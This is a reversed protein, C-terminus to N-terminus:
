GLVERVVDLASSPLLKLYPEAGSRPADFGAIASWRVFQGDVAVVAVHTSDKYWEFTIEGTPEPLVTPVALSQPFATSLVIAADVASTSVAIAGDGDWDDHDATARAEIIQQFLHSYRHGITVSNDAFAVRTPKRSFDEAAESVGESAYADSYAQSKQM